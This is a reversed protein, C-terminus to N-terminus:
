GFGEHLATALPALAQEAAEGHNVLGLCPAPLLSRLTEITSDKEPYDPFLSNGVWGLLTLGDARVAEATLRAHNICGLRLGVVLLVPWGLRAALAAMDVGPALPVRWGGAGEAVVFAAEEALRGATAVIRAVDIAVGARAAAVHPAIAPEFCYVNILSDQAGPGAAATLLSVDENVLGGAATRQAGSAVPKFGRARVGRTVLARLIGAAVYTKGVETDTGTIFIGPTLILRADAAQDTM